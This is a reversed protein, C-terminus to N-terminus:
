QFIGDLEDPEVVRQKKREKQEEESIKRSKYKGAKQLYQM